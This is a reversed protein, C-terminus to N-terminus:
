VKVKENDSISSNFTKSEGSEAFVDDIIISSDKIILDVSRVGGPEQNPAYLQWRPSGATSFNLEYKKDTIKKSTVTWQYNASDQAFVSSYFTLTGLLWGLYIKRM